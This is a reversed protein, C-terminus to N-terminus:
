PMPTTAPLNDVPPGFQVAGETLPAPQPSISRVTPGANQFNLGGSAPSPTPTEPLFPTLGPAQQPQQQPLMTGPLQQPAPPTFEPTTPAPVTMKPVLQQLGPPIPLPPAMNPTTGIMRGPTNVPDPKQRLVFAETRNRENEVASTFSCAPLPGDQVAINNHRLTNGKAWQFRILANNYEAIAEYEKVQASALRRQAELLFDSVTTRGAAFEKFRAEVSDAYAKREARRAEILAYWSAIQQYQFACSRTVREEQDKLRLYTQALQLRGTRVLANEPRFGLPYLFNVGINWNNYHSNALGEFANTPQPGNNPNDFSGRGDLRTGTGVPAYTSSLRLDPKLNNKLAELNYQVKLVDDRLILLEPRQSLAENVSMEWDPVLATLNPPTVPVLRKGDEVPLGLLGRLIREREIVETLASFREGRFEEYQGLVPYYDKPGISGAQFKAYNIMWSRHAIRLVEEFSYLRGYAQYLKWYAVETNLLLTQVQREFEARSQDHNLRQILIGSGGAVSGNRANYGAILEGAQIGTNSLGAGTVAPARTLVQNIFTGYDRWLPQEFHVAVRSIYQPNLVQFQNNVPPNSLYRYTNDFFVGGSGGGPFSKVLGMNVLGATGNNFAGFGQVLEDTTTVSTTMGFMADYRGLQAELNNYQIAPGMELVRLKEAANTGRFSAVSDNFVNQDDFSQNATNPAGGTNGKELAISLAWPLTLELPEREPFQLDAPPRAQDPGIPAPLMRRFTGDELDAGLVVHANDFCDKPLFLQQKCGIATTCALVVGCFTRFWRKMTWGM